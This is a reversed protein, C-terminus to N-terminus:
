TWKLIDAEPKSWIAGTKGSELVKQFIKTVLDLSFLFPMMKKSWLNGMKFAISLFAHLGGSGEPVNQM